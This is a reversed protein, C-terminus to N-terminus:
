AELHGIYSFSFVEEIGPFVAIGGQPDDTWKNRRIPINVQMRKHAELPIGSRPEFNLYTVHKESSPNMGIVGDALSPDGNLFHPTSM